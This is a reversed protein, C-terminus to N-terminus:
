VRPKTDIEVTSKKARGSMLRCAVKHWHIIFENRFTNHLLLAVQPDNAPLYVLSLRRAAHLAIEWGEVDDRLLLIGHRAGRYFVLWEELQEKATHSRQFASIASSVKMLQLSITPHKLKYQM